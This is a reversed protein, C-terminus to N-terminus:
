ESKENSDNDNEHIKKILKNINEVYDLTDDIFFALEPTRRIRLRSALKSRFHGKANNLHELTISRREKDLISVYVKALSLDGSVKVSTITTMGLAPDNTERLLIISLEKKIIEAIREIRVSM